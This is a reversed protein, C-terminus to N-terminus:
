MGKAEGLRIKIAEVLDRFNSIWGRSKLRHELYATIDPDVIDSKLCLAMMEFDPDPFARFTEDIEGERRCTVLLRLQSLKWGEIETLTEM